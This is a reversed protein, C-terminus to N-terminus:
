SNRAAKVALDFNIRARKLQAPTLQVFRARKAIAVENDFIYDIFAQVETRQFSSGKAYIFLPRSLPRYTGTHVTKVGQLSANTPRPTASRSPACSTRTRWSTPTASTASGARRVPCARSSCTTTRPRPTTLAARAHGATSRGRHLIRVDGLRNRSRLAEAERGPFGARVDKWNDVKSGAQWIKKLEDVSLCTAWTNSRNVVVTLADNAVTFARWSGVKNDKCVQAERVRMPRSADSLDTEGRCFREFGGGTGSIGVTIRVNKAGAKAFLEAAAQAYPGVTSSGDATITGKLKSLNYSPGAASAASVAVVAVGALAAVLWASRRTARM